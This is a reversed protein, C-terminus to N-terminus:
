NVNIELKSKEITLQRIRLYKITRIAVPNNINFLLLFRLDALLKYPFYIFSCVCISYYLQACRDKANEITRKLASFFYSCDRM